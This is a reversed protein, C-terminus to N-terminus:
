RVRGNRNMWADLADPDFRLPANRRPGLKKVPIQNPGQVLRYLQRKDRLRLYEVAEDADLLPRRRRPAETKIESM